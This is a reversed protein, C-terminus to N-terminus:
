RGFRGRGRGRRRGQQRYRDVFPKPGSRPFNSFPSLPTQGPSTTAPAIGGPQSGSPTLGGLATFLDPDSNAIVAYTAEMMADAVDKTRVPGTTPHNVRRYTRQLYELEQHAPLYYPAHVIGMGAATKFVEAVVWNREKHATAQYVACPKPLDLARIRRDLRQIVQASNFQDFSLTSLGFAAAYRVLEDEIQDYDIHGSEFSSPEWRHLVDFVVHLRGDLTEGHAIAFGFNDGSLSPDGHAAYTLNLKGVIEQEFVRGQHAEFIRDVDPLPLYSNRAARFQGGYEVAYTEPNSRRMLEVEADDRVLIARTLAAYNPGGPWMEIEAAREWDEYLMWSPGQLMFHGPIAAQGTAPNIELAREYNLYQPGTKEAPSSSLVVLQDRGFQATAPTTADYISNADATSGAGTVHAVEDFVVMPIAAGRGATATSEAARIAILGDDVGPQAGDRLQRPLLVTVVDRTSRGLISTFCPATTMLSRVDGFQDRVAQDVKTAFVLVNLQKQPDIGYREHPDEVQLDWARYAVLTRVVHGKGARRGLVLVVTNFWPAGAEHLREMRELLDPSTGESGAWRSGRDDLVPSFGEGWGAIVERDYDTLADLQGAIVKLLTGQRPYLSQGLFRTAFDVINLPSEVDSVQAPPRAAGQARSLRSEFSSM